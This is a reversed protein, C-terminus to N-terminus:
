AKGVIESVDVYPHLEVKIQEGRALGLVLDNPVPPEPEPVM